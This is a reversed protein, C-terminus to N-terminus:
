RCEVGALIRKFQGPCPDTLNLKRLDHRITCRAQGVCKTELISLLTPSGTYVCKAEPLMASPGESCPGTYGTALAHKGVDAYM